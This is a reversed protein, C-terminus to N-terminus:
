PILLVAHVVLLLVIALRVALTPHARVAQRLRRFLRTM